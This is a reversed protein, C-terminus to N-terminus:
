DQQAVIVPVCRWGHAGLTPSHDIHLNIESPQYDVGADSRVFCPVGTFFVM